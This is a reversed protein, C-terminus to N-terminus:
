GQSEFSFDTFLRRWFVVTVLMAHWNQVVRRRKIPNDKTTEQQEQEHQKGCGLRQLTAIDKCAFGASFDHM